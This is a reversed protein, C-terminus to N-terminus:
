ENVYDMVEDDSIIIDRVTDKEYNVQDRLNKSIVLLETNELFITVHTEMPGTYLQQGKNVKIRKLIHNTNTSKYFYYYSGSITYMYHWDTLHYHNSRISFKSSNILSVNTNSKNLISQIKGRQDIHPPDLDILKKSNKVIKFKIM